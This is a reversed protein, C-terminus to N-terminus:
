NHNPFGNKRRRDPATDKITIVMIGGGLLRGNIFGGLDNLPFPMGGLGLAGKALGLSRYGNPGKGLNEIKLVRFGSSELLRMITTPTFFSLHEPPKFQKWQTFDQELFASLMNPTSLALLGGEKLIRNAEALEDAPSYLHEIYEWMTVLDFHSQPFGAGMMTPHVEIGLRKETHYASHKSWEVGSIEWGQRAAVELFFGFACGLDIVKSGEGGCSRVIELRRKAEVIIEPYDKLYASYGYRDDGRYYEHDYLDALSPEPPRPGIFTLRCDRCVRFDHNDKKFWLNSREGQCLPCIVQESSSRDGWGGKGRLSPPSVGRGTEPLPQPLPRSDKYM